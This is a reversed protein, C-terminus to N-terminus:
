SLEKKLMNNKKKYLYYIGCIITLYCLVFIYKLIAKDKTFPNEAEQEISDTKAGEVKEDPVVLVEKNDEQGKNESELKESDGVEKTIEYILESSSSDLTLVAKYKGVDVPVSDIDVYSDTDEDYKMYKVDYLKPDVEKNFVIPIKSGSYVLDKPLSAILKSKKGCGCIGYIGGELTELKTFEHAHEEWVAYLNIESEYPASYENIVSEDNEFLSWGKFNYGVATLVPLDDGNIEVGYDPLLSNLDFMATKEKYEVSNGITTNYIIKFKANKDSNIWVRGNNKVTITSYGTVAGHWVPYDTGLNNYAFKIGHNNHSTALTKRINYWQPGGLGGGYLVYLRESETLANASKGYKAQAIPNIYTNRISNITSIFNDYDDSDFAASNNNLFNTVSTVNDANIGANKLAQIVDNITTSQVVDDGSDGYISYYYVVYGNADYDVTILVGHDKSIEIQKKRIIDGEARTLSDKLDYRESETLQAPTKYFMSAALPAYYLDRIENICEIFDAYDDSDFYDENLILFNRITQVNISNVGMDKAANVVDIITYEVDESDDWALVLVPMFMAILFVIFKKM